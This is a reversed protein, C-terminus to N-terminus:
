RIFFNYLVFGKIANKISIFDNFLANATQSQKKGEMKAELLAQLPSLKYIKKM